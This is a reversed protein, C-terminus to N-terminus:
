FTLRIREAREEFVAGGAAERKRWDRDSIVGDDNNPTAVGEGANGSSVGARGAVEQFGCFLAVAVLFIRRTVLM